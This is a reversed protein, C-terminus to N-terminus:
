ASARREVLGGLAQTLDMYPWVKLASGPTCNIVEIGRNSLPVVLTKFRELWKAYMGEGHERLPAEHKAHWHTGHMDFGCLMIRKCGLHAAVHIAQYGSNGGTCITDPNPDFGERAGEKLKLVEPYPNDTCTAKLGAFALAEKKHYNWWGADAAYLLDAWSALRFTNNVVIMRHPKARRVTEVVEMSMSPGSAMIVCPQDEWMREITWATAM